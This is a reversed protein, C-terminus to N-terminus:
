QCYSAASWQGTEVYSSFPLVVALVLLGVDPKLSAHIQRLLTLPNECRDIVNLCSIVDYQRGDASNPAWDDIGLM